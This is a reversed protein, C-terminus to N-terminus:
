EVVATKIDGCLVSGSVPETLLLVGQTQFLGFHGVRSYKGDQKSEDRECTDKENGNKVLLM